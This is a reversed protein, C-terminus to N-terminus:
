KQALLVGVAISWFVSVAAMTLATMVAGRGYRPPGAVIERLARKGLVLGTVPLPVGLLSLVVLTMGTAQGNLYAFVEVYSLGFVIPGSLLSVILSAVAWLSLRPRQDMRRVRFNKCPGCLVQGQFSVVCASCFAEGCAACVHESPIEDHNLCRTPESATSMNPVHIAHGCECFVITGALDDPRGHRKSFQKCAFWIM